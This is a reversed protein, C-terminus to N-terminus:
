SSEKASNRRSIVERLLPLFFAKSFRGTPLEPELYFSNGVIDTNFEDFIIWLRRDVDLGARRTGIVPLEM